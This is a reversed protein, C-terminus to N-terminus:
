AANFHRCIMYAVGRYVLLCEETVTSLRREGKLYSIGRYTLLHQQPSLNQELQSFTTRIGRYIGTPKQIFNVEEGYFQM